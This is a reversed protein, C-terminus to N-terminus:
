REVTLLLNTPTSPYIPVISRDNTILIARLKTGQERGRFIIENTGDMIFLRPDIAYASEIPKDTGGRGNITTWQWIPARLRVTDYVDEPQSDRSVYFSDTGESDSFVASWIVYEDLYPVTFNFRCFGSDENTSVAYTYGSDSNLIFPTELSASAIELLIKMPPNTFSQRYSVENSVDSEGGTGKATVVFYYRFGDPLGSITKTLSLGASEQATYIGPSAGYKVVYETIGSSTSADWALNVSAAGADSAFLFLILGWCNPM